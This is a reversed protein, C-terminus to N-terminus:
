SMRIIEASNEKSLSDLEKGTRSKSPIGNQHIFRDTQAAKTQKCKDDIDGNRHADGKIKKVNFTFLAM